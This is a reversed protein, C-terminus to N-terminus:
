LKDGERGEYHNHPYNNNKRVALTFSIMPVCTFGHTSLTCISPLLGNLGNTHNTLMLSPLVGPSRPRRPPGPGSRSELASKPEEGRGGGPPPAPRGPRGERGGQMCGVFFFLGMNKILLIGLSAKKKPPPIPPSLGGSSRPGSCAPGLKSPPNPSRQWDSATFETKITARGVAIHYRWAPSNSRQLFEVPTVGAGHLVESVGGEHSKRTLPHCRPCTAQTVCAAHRTVASGLGRSSAPPQYYWQLLM